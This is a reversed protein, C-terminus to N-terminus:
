GTGSWFEDPLPADFDDSACLANPHLGAVREADGTLGVLRGIAKNGETLVIDAGKAAEAILESLRTQAESVEVTRSEM